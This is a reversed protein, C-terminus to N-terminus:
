KVVRYRLHTVGPSDIVQVPELEIPEPGLFQFLRGQDKKGAERIWGGVATQVFYEPDEVLIRAIDFTTQFDNKRIFYYTSVIATRREWRNKSRALAYLVDSPKDALYGGIVYPAARDVLSWTDIYDHRNVYLDFLAKRQAETTKKARAQWDMISVARVRHAHVPSTLLKDVEGVGMHMHKQAIAFLDRM